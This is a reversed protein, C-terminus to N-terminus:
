LEQQVSSYINSYINMLNMYIVDGVSISSSSSPQFPYPSLNNGQLPHDVERRCLLLHMYIYICPIRPVALDSFAHGPNGIFGFGVATSLSIMYLMHQM